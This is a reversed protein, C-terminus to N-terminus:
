WQVRAHRPRCSVRLDDELQDLQAQQEESARGGAAAVAKQVRKLQRETKIRDAFKIQLTYLGRPDAFCGHPHM